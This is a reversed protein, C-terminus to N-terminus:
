FLVWEGEISIQGFAWGNFTRLGWASYSYSYQVWPIYLCTSLVFPGTNCGVVIDGRYNRHLLYFATYQHLLSFHFDPSKTSHKPVFHSTFLFLATNYQIVHRAANQRWSLSVFLSLFCWARSSSKVKQRVATQETRHTWSIRQTLFRSLNIVNPYVWFHREDENVWGWAM